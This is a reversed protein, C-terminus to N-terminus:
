NSELLKEKYINYKERKKLDIIGQNNALKICVM